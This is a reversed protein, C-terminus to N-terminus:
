FTLSVWLMTGARLRGAEFWDMSGHDPKCDAAPAPPGACGPTFLRGHFNNWNTYISINPTGMTNIGHGYNGQNAAQVLAATAKSYFSSASWAYFRVGWYFRRKLALTQEVTGSSTLNLRSIPLAEEWSSAGLQALTVNAIHAMFYKYRDLQYHPVAPSCRDLDAKPPKCYEGGQSLTRCM